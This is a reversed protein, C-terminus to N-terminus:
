KSILEKIKAEPYTHETAVINGKKDVVFYSPVGMVNYSEAVSTTKDLLVKFSLSYKKIAQDVKDSSEGVDIALLEFGQRVLELYRTNLTTLEKRCYPCWTTWFFLIVAQKNKYNSMKYENKYIDQLKFDPAAKSKEQQALGISVFVFVLAFGIIYKKM